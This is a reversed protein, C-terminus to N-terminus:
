RVSSKFKFDSNFTSRPVKTEIRAAVVLKEDNVNQTTKEKLKLETSEEISRQM